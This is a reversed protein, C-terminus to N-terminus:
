RRLNRKLILDKLKNDMFDVIDEDAGRRRLNLLKLLDADDLAVIYKDDELFDQSRRLLDQKDDTGRFVLVGFKGKSKNLRGGLQDFEENKMDSYNKCEIFIWPCHVEHAEKLEKFFGNKSRNTAVIDIRKRGEHIREEIEFNKLEGEFIRRLILASLRHFATEGARGKPIKKLRKEWLVDLSMEDPDPEVVEVGQEKKVTVPQVTQPEAIPKGRECIQAIENVALQGDLLNLDKKVYLRAINHNVPYKEEFEFGSSEMMFDVEYDEFERFFSNFKSKGLHFGDGLKVADTCRKKYDAEGHMAYYFLFGGDNLKEHCYKLALLREAPVPMTSLVNILLVLDFKETSKMFGHPFVLEHFRSGYTKAKDHMTKGHVSETFLKEFEVACVTYGKELLYITNRLKAAGFDLVKNIKKKGFYNFLEEFTGGLRVGPDNFSPAATTVDIAVEKLL